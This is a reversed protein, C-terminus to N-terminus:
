QEEGGFIKEPTEILCQVVMLVGLVGSIPVSVGIISMPIFIAAGMENMNVQQGVLQVGYITMFIFFAISGVLYLFGAAKQVTRPMMAIFVTVRASEAYRFGYALAIFMMWLFMYRTGEETWPLPTGIIRGIIQAIVTLFLCGLTILLVIEAAKDIVKFFLLTKGTKQENNM